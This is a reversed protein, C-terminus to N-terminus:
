GVHGFYFSEFACSSSTRWVGIYTHQATWKADNLPAGNSWRFVHEAGDAGKTEWREVCPKSGSAGPASELEDVWAFLAKHDGPKAGLVFSMGLEKLLRVHPGNSALGDEVVLLPLHPHERRLM